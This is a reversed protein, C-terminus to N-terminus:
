LNLKVRASLPSALISIFATIETKQPTFREKISIHLCNAKFIDEKNEFSAATKRTFSCYYEFTSRAYASVHEVGIILSSHSPKKKEDTRFIRCCCGM